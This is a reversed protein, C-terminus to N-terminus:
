RPPRPPRLKREGPMFMSLAKEFRAYGPCLVSNVAEEIADRATM